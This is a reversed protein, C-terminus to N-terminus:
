TLSVSNFSYHRYVFYDKEEANITLGDLIAFNGEFHSNNLFDKIMLLTRNLVLEYNIKSLAIIQQNNEKLNLIDILKNNFREILEKFIIYKSPDNDDNQLQKIDKFNNRKKLFELFGMMAGCCNSYKIQGPRLIKGYKIEDEIIIGLHPSVFVILNGEKRGIDKVNDPPHHSAATMGTIGGIPYAALTGLHFEGGGYEETLANEITERENLRNIDDSCVTFVLRSNNRSFDDKKLKEILNEKFETVSFIKGWDKFDKQLQNIINKDNM